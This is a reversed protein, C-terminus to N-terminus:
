VDGTTAARLGGYNPVGALVLAPYNPNGGGNYTLLAIRVDGEARTMCKKLKVCGHTLNDMPDCLQTLYKATYGQERAVQGMVQMLGYSFARAMKETESLNKMSAVYRTYFAPEWRIAWPNWGGSEHECVACVLAPDLGYNHAQAIALQQLEKQMM